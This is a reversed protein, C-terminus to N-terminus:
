EGKKENTDVYYKDTDWVNKPGTMEYMELELTDGFKHTELLEGERNVRAVFVTDCQLLHSLAATRDVEILKGM